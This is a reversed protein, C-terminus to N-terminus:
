KYESFEKFQEYIFFSAGNVLLARVACPTYGKWFNKMNYAESFSINLAMQRSRIVDIPYTITWTCLGALGGAIFIKLSLRNKFYAYSGFYVGNATSERMINSMMGKTTYFSRLTISANTQRRVKGVNILYVFPSVFLGSLMGSLFPSNTYEVSKDYSPFVIMNYGLSGALPYSVGNYYSNWVMNKWPQGTQIRVKITDLPHGLLSQTAGIAAGM